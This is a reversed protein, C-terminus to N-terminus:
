KFRGNKDRELQVESKGQSDPLSDFQANGYAHGELYSPSQMSQYRGYFGDDSGINHLRKARAVMSPHDERM